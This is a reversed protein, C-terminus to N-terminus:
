RGASHLAGLGKNRLHWRQTRGSPVLAPYGLFFGFGARVPLFRNFGHDVGPIAEGQHCDRRNKGGHQSFYTPGKGCLGDVWAFWDNGTTDLEGVLGGSLATVSITRAVHMVDKLDPPAVRFRSARAGRRQRGSEQGQSWGRAAGADGAAQSDAPHLFDRRRLRM